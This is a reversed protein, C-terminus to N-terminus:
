HAYKGTFWNSLYTNIYTHRFGLEGKRGQYVEKYTLVFFNKDWWSIFMWSILTEMRM